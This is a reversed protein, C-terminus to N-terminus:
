GRRPAKRNQELEAGLAPLEGSRKLFGLALFLFSLFWM